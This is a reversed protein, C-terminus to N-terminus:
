KRKLVIVYFTFLFECLYGIMILRLKLNKPGQEESKCFFCVFKDLSFLLLQPLLNVVKVVKRECHPSVLESHLNPKTTLVTDVNAENCLLDILVVVFIKTCTNM